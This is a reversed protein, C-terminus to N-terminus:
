SETETTLSSICIEVGCEQGIRQAYQWKYLDSGDDVGYKRAVEDRVAKFASQLNDDDLNRKGVRTFLVTAPLTPLDCGFLSLAVFNRQSKVIKAKAAWHLRENAMSPLEMPITIRIQSM